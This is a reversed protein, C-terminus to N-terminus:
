NLFDIVSNSVLWVFEIEMTVYLVDIWETMM